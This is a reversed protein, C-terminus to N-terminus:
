NGTEMLAFVPQFIAYYITNITVDDNGLEGRFVRVAASMTGEILHMVLVRVSGRESLHFRRDIEDCM